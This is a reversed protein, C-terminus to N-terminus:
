VKEDGGAKRNSVEEGEDEGEQGDLITAEYPLLNPLGLPTIPFSVNIGESILTGKAVDHRLPEKTLPCVLLGLLEQNPPAPSPIAPRPISSSSSSSSSNLRRPITILLRRSLSPM